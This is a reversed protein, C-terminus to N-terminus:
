SFEGLWRIVVLYLVCLCAEAVDGLFKVVVHHISTLLVHRRSTPVTTAVLWLLVKDHSRLVLLDAARVTLRLTVEHLFDILDEAVADVKALEWM